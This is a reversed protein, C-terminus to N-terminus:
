LRVVNEASQVLSHISDMKAQRAEELKQMKRLNQSRISSNGPLTHMIDKQPQEARLNVQYRREAHDGSKHEYCPRKMEEPNEFRSPGSRAALEEIDM